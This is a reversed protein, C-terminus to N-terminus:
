VLRKGFLLAASCRRLRSLACSAGRLPGTCMSSSDIASENYDSADFYDAALAKKCADPDSSAFAERYNPYSVVGVGLYHGLLVATAVTIHIAEIFTLRGSDRRPAIGQWHSSEPQL